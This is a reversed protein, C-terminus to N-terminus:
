RPGKWVMQTGDVGGNSPVSVRKILHRTLIQRSSDIRLGWVEIQVAEVSGSPLPELDNGEALSLQTPTVSADLWAPTRMIETALDKLHQEDPLIRALLQPTEFCEGLDVNRWQGDVRLQCKVFRSGHYDVTAFM